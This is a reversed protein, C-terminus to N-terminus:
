RNENKKEEEDGDSGSDREKKREQLRSLKRGPQPIESGHGAEGKKAKQGTCTIARAGEAASRSACDAPGGRKEQRDTKTKKENQEKEKACVIVRVSWNKKESFDNLVDAEALAAAIVLLESMSM